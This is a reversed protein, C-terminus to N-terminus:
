IILQNDIELRQQRRLIQIQEAINPIQCNLAADLKENSLSMDRPRSVLDLKENISVSNILGVQLDFGDALKVGFAFKSLREGGGINFIGYANLDVLAHVKKCLQEIIIPTYFVDNFLNVQENQKLKTLIFDSFSQRYNTGWGFFNTRIILAQHCNEQVVEEGRLKSQAYVNVPSTYADEKVLSSKGSFLHDTSIHVLKINKQSCSISINKALDVNIKYALEPNSECGEINTLGVTHIVIDPQYKNLFYICQSISDLSHFATKVGRILIDRTHLLLTIEYEDRLTLTWNIALLGSGGTILIKKKM